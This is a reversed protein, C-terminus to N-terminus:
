NVQKGYNRGFLVIFLLIINQAVFAGAPVESAVGYKCMFHEPKRGLSIV